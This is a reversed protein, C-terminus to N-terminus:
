LKLWTTHKSHTQQWKFCIIGCLDRLRQPKTSCSAVEIFFTLAVKTHIEKSRVGRVPPAKLTNKAKITAWHVFLLWM